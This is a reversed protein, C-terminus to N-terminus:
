EDFGCGRANVGVKPPTTPCADEINAVGDGDTDSLSTDRTYIAEGSRPGLNAPWSVASNDKLYIFKDCLDAAADSAPCQVDADSDDPNVLPRIKLAAKTPNVAVIELNAVRISTGPQVRDFDIRAGLERTLPGNATVTKTAQFLFSYRRWTTSGPFTEAVPVLPEYGTSGGGGRRVLAYIPQGEQSTAADFTVRYWQGGTVSFNPSSMLSASGGATFQLCPGFSCTLLDFRAYPAAPNWKTWGTWSNILNGNPVINTGSSLFSAYGTPQTVKGNIDQAKVQWEDLNYSASGTSWREGILRSSFLASYHNNSFTAFDETDGIESEMFVNPGGAAPVILNSEIKNGFIDGKARVRATQEQLWLQYRRNGIIRNQSLTSSNANHLQIGYEANTVTNDTVLANTAGDDLYIGVAHNEWYDPLGAVNGLVSEVLNRTISSDNGKYNLYIGACDNFSMCTRAVHNDAATSNTGLIIGNSAADLVKNRTIQANPGVIIAAVSPRPLRRWGDSGTSAGTETIVNDSVTFGTTAGGVAKIGDVGTKAITSQKVACTQCGDADVGFDIIEALAVNQLHVTNAAGMMVGTGVRRVEIGSVELHSKKRLDAGTALSSFSVRNGPASNDPMWIYLYGNSSDFFWEGPSDLMWLAGTLFYGFGARIADGTPADLTLRSGAVATIKREEMRWPQTRITIGLGAALSANAPLPLGTTDVITNGGATAIKAFPSSADTGVQGFNPHHSGRVGAGDVFVGVMNASPLVRKIHVERLNIKARSAQVEFDFRANPASRSAVFTFSVTQWMGSGKIYQEPVFSEYTPGGRRIVLRLPTGAPAKVLASATYKMGGALPFNNSIITGSSSGSTYAMCPAPSGSCATDLSMSADHEPSWSTWGGLNTNLKPNAIHEISSVQARYISGKYQSWMHGPITVAGDIMPPNECTGPGASIVIPAASTGSSAVRLTENWTSGCALYVTDGPVLSATALRSFTQWPGNASSGGAATPLKGNRFDSGRESDIYYTTAHALQQGTTLAILFLATKIIVM